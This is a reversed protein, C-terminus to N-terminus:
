NQGGVQHISKTDKALLYTDEPCNIIDDLRFLTINLYEFM